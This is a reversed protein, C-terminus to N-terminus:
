LHQTETLLSVCLRLLDLLHANNCCGLTKITKGNLIYQLSGVIKFVHSLLTHFLTKQYIFTHINEFHKRYVICQSLVFTLFFEKPCFLSYLFIGEKKKRSSWSM